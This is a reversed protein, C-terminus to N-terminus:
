LQELESPEAQIVYTVTSEGTSEVKTAAALGPILKLQTEVLQRVRDVGRYIPEDDEVAPCGCRPGRDCDDGHHRVIHGESILYHKRAMVARVEAELDEIKAVMMSRIEEVTERPQETWFQKVGAWANGTNGRFYEDAVQKWTAGKSRMEAARQRREAAEITKRYGGPGSVAGPM